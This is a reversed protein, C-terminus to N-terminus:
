RIDTIIKTVRSYSDIDGTQLYKQSALELYKIGNKKDEKELMISGINELPLPNQTGISVARLFDKLAEDKRNIKMACLGKQIFIDVYVSDTDVINSLLFHCRSFNGKEKELVALNYVSSPTPNLKLSLNLDNTAHDLLDLAKYAVSRNSYLSADSPSLKIAESIWKM